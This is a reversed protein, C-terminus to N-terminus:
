EKIKIKDMLWIAGYMFPTDILAIIVKVIWMGLIMNWIPFVGYFAITIFVVSDILQSVITSANNRLWLHKGNTKKKWFHFAWIDHHQSILYAVFGALSIRPTLALVKAFMESFETAFIAPQWHIVIYVSIVLVLSSFFGAWIAQKAEKKGWKESILDTIFFIMSFTIVGAPVTFSGFQVIKNAFINAMVVLASVLAIPYVVGYRKGLIGAISGIFFTAIIWLTIITISM